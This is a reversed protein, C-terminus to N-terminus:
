GKHTAADAARHMKADARGTGFTNGGELIGSIPSEGSWLNGSTDVPLLLLM